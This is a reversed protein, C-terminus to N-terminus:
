NFVKFWGKILKKIGKCTDLETQVRALEGKAREGDEAMTKFMRLNEKMVKCTGAEQQYKREVDSIPLVCIIFHM